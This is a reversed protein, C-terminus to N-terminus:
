QRPSRVEPDAASNGGTSGASDMPLKGNLSSGGNALGVHGAMAPSSWLAPTLRGTAARFLMASPGCDSSHIGDRSPHVLQSRWSMCPSPSMGDRSVETDERGM